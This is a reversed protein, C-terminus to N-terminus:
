NGVNSLVRSRIAQYARFGKSVASRLEAAAIDLLRPRLLDPDCIVYSGDDFVVKNRNPNEFVTAPKWYVVKGLKGVLSRSDANWGSRLVVQTGVAHLSYSGTQKM